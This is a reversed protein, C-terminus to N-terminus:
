DNGRMWATLPEGSDADATASRSATADPDPMGTCIGYGNAALAKPAGVYIAVAASGVAGILMLAIAALIGTILALISLWGRDSVLAFFLL